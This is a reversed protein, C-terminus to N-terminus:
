DVNPVDGDRVQTKDGRILLEPPPRQRKGERERERRGRDGTRKNRRRDGGKKRRQHQVTNKISKHTSHLSPSSAALPECRRYITGIFPQFKHCNDSAENQLTCDTSKFPRRRVTVASGKQKLPSPHM